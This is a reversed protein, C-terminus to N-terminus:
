YIIVQPYPAHHYAYRRGDRIAAIKGQAPRTALERGNAANLRIESYRPESIIKDKMTQESFTVLVAGDGDVVLGAPGRSRGHGDVFSSQVGTGGRITTTAGQRVYSVGAQWLMRGNAAFAVLLSRHANLLLVREHAGDCALWGLNLSQARMKLGSAQFGRQEASSLTLSEGFSRVVRGLSDLEHLLLKQGPTLVFTRAGITCVDFVPFPLRTNAVHALEGGRARFIGIRTDRNDVVRIAGDPAVDLAMPDDFEAPGGDKRGIRARFRGSADYWRLQNGMGDLVVVGDDPLAAVDRM